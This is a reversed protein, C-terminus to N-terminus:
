FQLVFLCNKSFVKVIELIYFKINVGWISGEKRKRQPSMSYNKFALNNNGWGKVFEIIVDKLPFYIQKSEQLYEYHDSEQKHMQQEWKTFIACQLM